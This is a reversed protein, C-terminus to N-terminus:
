QTTSWTVQTTSTWNLAGDSSRLTMRVPISSFPPAGASHLEIGVSLQQTGSRPIRLTAPYGTNIPTSVGDITVMGEPAESGDAAQALLPEINLEASAGAALRIKVEVPLHFQALWTDTSRSTTGAVSAPANILVVPSVTLRLTGTKQDAARLTPPWFSCWTAAVALMTILSKNFTM